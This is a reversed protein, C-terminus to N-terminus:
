RGPSVKPLIRIMELDLGSAFAHRLVHPTAGELNATKGLRELVRVVGIVHGVRIEGPFVTLNPVPEQARLLVM